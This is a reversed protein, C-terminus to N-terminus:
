KNSLCGMDFQRPRMEDALWCEGKTGDCVASLAGPAQLVKPISVTARLQVKAGPIVVLRGWSCCWLM